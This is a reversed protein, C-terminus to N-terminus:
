RGDVSVKMGEIFGGDSNVIRLCFAWDGGGQAIKVLVKNWGRSLRAKAKDQGVALGRTANNSHVVKDGIWVKIGDDSGMELLADIAEPAWIHTKMYASRNDGRGVAQLLDIKQPAVGKTLPSWKVGVADPKEPPHVTSFPNGQTYPGSGVWSTIYGRFKDMERLIGQAKGRLNGNGTSDVIRKLTSRAVDPASDRCNSAIQVLALEAEAKVAPDSLLGEVLRIAGESRAGALGALVSKKETANRALELADAYMRGTEAVSRESPMNAARIFGRFALVRHIDNRTTKIIDLLDAAPSADPWDGFARVAATAVDADRSRLQRRVGSLAGRGGLRGLIKVLRAKADADARDLGSVMAETRAEPDSVRLATAALAKELASRESGGEFELLMDVMDPMENLGAVTALGKLAASRINEDRDRAAKVMAPAMTKDARATIVKIIGAKVAPDPSDLLDAMARGIGEGKIRNLSDVAADGVAGGAAAARALVSVCSADGMVALAKIAAIRVPENGSDILRTVEPAAAVDGRETLAGILIVQAEASLGGLERALARTAAEGPVEIVFKSAARRLDVDKDSLLKVLTGAAGEKETFVIGRLAAIRLMKAKGEGFMERYIASARYRDGETQMRDACMLRADDRHNALKRPARARSLAEAAEPTGIKGLASIAARATKEDPDSVLRALERVARRDRRQGVSGIMGTKLDGAAGPMARRLADDAEPAPHRELAFRAMHSLKPDVLLKSLAPVSAESGIRRLIRCVFQKAPATARPDELVRILKDEIARLDAAGEAQRTEEEIAALPKRSKTWDYSVLEDYASGRAAGACALAAAAAIFGSFVIEKRSKM